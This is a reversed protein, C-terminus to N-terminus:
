LRAVPPEDGLGAAGFALAAEVDPFYGIAFRVGERAPLAGPAAPDGTAVALSAIGAAHYRPVVEASWWPDYADLGEIRAQGRLWAVAPSDPDLGRADIVALRPRHTGCADAFAVIGRAFDPASLGPVANWDLRLADAGPVPHISYQPHQAPTSSDSM